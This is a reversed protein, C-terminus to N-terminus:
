TPKKEHGYLYHDVNVSSDSPIVTWEEDPIEEIIAKVMEWTTANMDKTKEGSEDMNEVYDLVKQQKEPPFHQIKAIIKQELNTM